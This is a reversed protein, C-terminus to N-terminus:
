CCGLKNRKRELVRELIIKKLEIASTGKDETIWGLRRSDRRNKGDKVFCVHLLRGLASILSFTKHDFANSQKIKKTIDPFDGSM